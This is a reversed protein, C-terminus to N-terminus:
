ARSGQLRWAIWLKHLPMIGARPRLPDNSRRRLKALGAISLEALAGAICSRDVHTRFSRLTPETREIHARTYAQLESSAREAYLVAEDVGHARLAEGPLLAAARGDRRPLDFLARALMLGSGLRRIEGSSDQAASGNSEGIELAVGITDAGYAELQEFTSCGRERLLHEGALVAPALRRPDVNRDILLRTAPHTANGAGANELEELWWALKRHAVAADTGSEATHWIEEVVAHLALTREAMAAELGLLAYHLSSGRPAARNRCYELAQM